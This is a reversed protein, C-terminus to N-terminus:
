DLAEVVIFVLWSIVEAMGGFCALCAPVITSPLAIKSAFTVIVFVLLGITVPFPIIRGTDTVLTTATTTNDSYCTSSATDLIM